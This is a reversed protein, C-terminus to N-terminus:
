DGVVRQWAGIDPPVRARRAGIDPRVCGTSLLCTGARILPSNSNLKFDNKTKPNAGGIMRVDGVDTPVVAGANASCATVSNACANSANSRTAQFGEFGTACNLAVNNRTNVNVAASAGKMVFCKSGGNVSNGTIETTGSVTTTPVAIGELESGNVINSEIKANPGSAFIGFYGGEIYNRQIKAGDGAALIAKSEFKRNGTKPLICTVNSIESSTGSAPDGIVVCSKSVNGDGSANQKDCHGNRIRANDTKTIIQVCDGLDAGPGTTFGPKEISFGDLLFNDGQWNLGDDTTMLSEFNIVTADAGLGYLGWVGAGAGIISVAALGEGKFAVSDTNSLSNRVYFGRSTAASVKINKWEQGQCEADTDCYLGYIVAAQANLEARSLDGDASCDGDVIVGAQEVSLMAAGGKSADKDAAVFTGCVKLTDGTNVGLAGWVVGSFGAWASAYSTGAGSGYTSGTPRVYWTAGWANGALLCLCLLLARMM